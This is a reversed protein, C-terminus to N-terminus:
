ELSVNDVTYEYKTPAPGAVIALGSFNNADLGTFNTLLLSITQWDQTIVFSQSPPIGQNVSSFFMVRYRGPTGKIDFTIKQKDLINYSQIPPRFSGVSAGSWPYPFGAKVEGSVFLAGGTQEGTDRQIRKVWSTSKGNAISDDTQSWAFGQISKFAAPEAADFNGLLSTALFHSNSAVTKAISRNVLKGNKFISHIALSNTIDQTPNGNLIVLDARSGKTIHGRQGLSFRKSTQSSAAKLAQVETLGARVLLQLETHLSFGAATGPNPIDSGALISVGATHLKNVNAMAISLDFGAIDAGFSANLTATQSPSLSDAAQFQAKVIENINQNDVSAIISLTPVVFIDHHQALAIFDQTAESDAFIHVLGDIDEEIMDKAAQQTSIHALAMLGQQHAADIVAAATERDLSPIRSQNPIYVLKIYDAGASKRDQVWRQAEEPKTLTDIAFGYQTGHGGEVTALMGSSFLDAENKAELEQRNQKNVVLGVESGFMDLHATVGFRLADKLADGYSHTHADILGPIVTLSQGSIVQANGANSLNPGMEQIIGNAIMVQTKEVVQTGDFVRVDQLFYADSTGDTQALEAEPTPLIAVLLILGLTTFIAVVPFIIKIM